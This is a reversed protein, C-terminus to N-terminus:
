RQQDLFAKVDQRTPIASSTGARTIHVAAAASAIRLATAIARGNDLAAIFYGFFTDGAGATDVVSQVPFAPCHLPPAHVGTNAPFYDAGEAGRTVLCACASTSLAGIETRLAAYEVANVVLLDLSPLLLRVASMSFPAATYAVRMDKTRALEAAEACLNTENQLVLWDNPHANQLGQELMPMTLTSNAGGYVVISNDSCSNVLIIAHGTPTTVSHVHASAGSATITNTIAQCDQAAVAGIHHVRGGARAAAITQNAGKGGLVTSYGQAAITEGSTPFNSVRYVHDINISGMNFISM